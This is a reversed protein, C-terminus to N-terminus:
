VSHLASEAFVRKQEGMGLLDPLHQTHRTTKTNKKLRKKKKELLM